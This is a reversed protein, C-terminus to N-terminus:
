HKQLPDGNPEPTSARRLAVLVRQMDLCKEAAFAWAPRQYDFPIGDPHPSPIEEDPDRGIFGCYIRAAAELPLLYADSPHLAM